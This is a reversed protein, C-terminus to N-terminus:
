SSLIALFLIVCTLVSFLFSEILSTNGFQNMLPAAITANSQL